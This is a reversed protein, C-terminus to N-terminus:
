SRENNSTVIGEKERETAGSNRVARSANRCCLPTLGIWCIKPLSWFPTLPSAVTKSRDFGWTFIPIRCM